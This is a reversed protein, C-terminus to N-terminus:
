FYFAYFKTGKKSFELTPSPLKIMNALFILAKLAKSRTKIATLDFDISVYYQRYPNYGAALNQDDRAYIMDEAGYGVALNLWRPFRIFKDMDASLWYTQGNYDKFLEQIPGDGLVDPRVPAYATRHFSFKPYIRIEKWGLSQALFFSSGAANALLDGASAGYAESYGDLIEIPLLVMFGTLSGILDSKTSPVNCWRLARSTGYSLYFSSYFHGLKDVQKWEANDNFWHFPEKGSDSYWLENLGVLTAGYVLSASLAFTRLRKKNVGSSDSVQADVSNLLALWLALLLITTKNRM